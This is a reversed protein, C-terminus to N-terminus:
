KYEYGVAKIRRLIWKYRREIDTHRPTIGADVCSHYRGYRDSLPCPECDLYYDDDEISGINPDQVMFIDCIMCPELHNQEGAMIDEYEHLRATIAKGFEREQEKTMKKCPM